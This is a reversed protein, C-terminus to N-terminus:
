YINSKPINHRISLGLPVDCFFSYMRHRNLTKDNKLYFTIKKLNSMDYLTLIRRVYELQGIYVLVFDILGIARHDELFEDFEVFFTFQSYAENMERVIKSIPDFAYLISDLFLKLEKEVELRTEILSSYSFRVEINTTGANEPHNRWFTQEDEDIEGVIGGMEEFFELFFVESGAAFFLERPIYVTIENDINENISLDGTYGYSSILFLFFVCFAWNKM